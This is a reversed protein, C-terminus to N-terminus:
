TAARIAAVVEAVRELATPGPLRPPVHAFALGDDLFAVSGGMGGHGFSGPGGLQQAPSPVEFVVGYANDRGVLRDRGRVQETACTALADRSVVRPLNAYFAALGRASGVAAGAPQGSARFGPTQAFFFLPPGGVPEARPALENPEGMLEGWAALDEETPLGVEVADVSTGLTLGPVALEAAYFEAVTRGCTRRVLEEGITGITLAHYGHATGPEWLPAQAAVLAAMRSQDLADAATYGGDVVPVGAQHSLAQRVTIGAKGAAGFEPWLTAVTADLDLEGSGVLLAVVAGLIGKTSSYVSRVADDGVDHVLVGDVYAAVQGPLDPVGELV